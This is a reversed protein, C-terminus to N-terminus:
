RVRLTIGASKLGPATASVEVKGGKNGAMLLITAIGAEAEMPNNGILEADGKVEFLIEHSAEPLITGNADIVAAYLFVVDNRGKVLPRNSEDIWLKL